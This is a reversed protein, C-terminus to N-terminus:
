TRALMKRADDGTRRIPPRSLTSGGSASRLTGLAGGSSATRSVTASAISNAAAVARLLNGGSPRKARVPAAPASKTRNSPAISAAATAAMRERDIRKLFPSPLNDEDTFDYVPPAAPTSASRSTQPRGASLTATTLPVSPTPARAVSSSSSASSSSSSTSAASQRSESLKPHSTSARIMSTRRVRAAPAQNKEDQPAPMQSALTSGMGVVPLSKARDFKSPSRLTRDGEDEGEEDKDFDFIQAFGLGGKPSEVFWKALEAPTPTALPEGTETLIVGKM